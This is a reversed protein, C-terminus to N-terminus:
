DKIRKKELNFANKAGKAIKGSSRPTPVVYAGFARNSSLPVDSKNFKVSFRGAVNNSPELCLQSEHTEESRRRHNGLQVGIGRRRSQIDILMQFKPRSTLGIATMSLCTKHRHLGHTILIPSANAQLGAGERRDSAIMSSLERNRRSIGTLLMVNPGLSLLMSHRSADM